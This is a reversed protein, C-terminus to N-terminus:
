FNDVKAKLKKLREDIIKQAAKKGSFGEICLQKWDTWSRWEDSVEGSKRLTIEVQDFWKQYNFSMLYEKNIHNFMVGM